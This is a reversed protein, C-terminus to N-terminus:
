PVNGMGWANFGLVQLLLESALRVLTLKSFPSCQEAITVLKDWKRQAKAYTCSTVKQDNQRQVAMVNGLICANMKAHDQHRPNRESISPREPKAKEVVLDHVEKLHKTM